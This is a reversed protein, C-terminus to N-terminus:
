RGVPLVKVSKQFRDPDKGPHEARLYKNALETAQTQLKQYWDDDQCSSVLQGLPVNQPGFGVDVLMHANFYCNPVEQEVAVEEQETSEFSWDIFRVVFGIAEGEDLFGKVKSTGEVHVRNDLTTLVKHVVIKLGNTQMEAPAPFISIGRQVLAKYFAAQEETKM